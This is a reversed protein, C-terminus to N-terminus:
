DGWAFDGGIAIGFQVHSRDEVLEAFTDSAIWSYGIHPRMYWKESLSVTLDAEFQYLQFASEALGLYAENFKSSGYGVEALAHFEGASWLSRGYEIGLEGFYAGSYEKIDVSHTMFPQFSGVSTSMTVSVESTWPLEAQDPYYYAQIAPEFSVRGVTLEYALGFDLENLSPSGEVAQFDYNSWLSATLGHSGLWFSNQSVADPSCALGRWMYRSTLDSELGYTLSPEAEFETDDQAFAPWVTCSIVCLMIALQRTSHSFSSGM